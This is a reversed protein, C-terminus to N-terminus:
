PKNRKGNIISFIDLLTKWVKLRHELLGINDKIVRILWYNM